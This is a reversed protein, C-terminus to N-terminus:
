MGAPSASVGSSTSGVIYRSEAIGDRVSEVMADFNEGYRLTYERLGRVLAEVQRAPDQERDVLAALFVGIASAAAEAAELHEATETERAAAFPSPMWSTSVANVLGAAISHPKGESIMAGSAYADWDPQVYRDTYAEWTQRREIGKSRGPMGVVMNCAETLSTARVVYEVANSAYVTASPRQAPSVSVLYPRDFDEDLPEALLTDLSPVGETEDCYDHLSFLLHWAGLAVPQGEDDLRMAKTHHAVAEATAAIRKSLSM